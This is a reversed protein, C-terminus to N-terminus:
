VTIRFKAYHKEAYILLEDIPLAGNLLWDGILSVKGKTKITKDQFVNEITM